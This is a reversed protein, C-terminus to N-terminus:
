REETRLKKDAFTLCKQPILFFGGPQNASQIGNQKKWVENAWTISLQSWKGRKNINKMIKGERRGEEM